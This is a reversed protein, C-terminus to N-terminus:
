RGFPDWGTALRAGLVLRVVEGYSAAGAEVRNAKLYSDYVSWGVASLRPSVERRLRERIANLDARPGAAIRAAITTRDSSPLSQLLEGYLFLWGSYQAAPSGRLCALWGVFNAEGEDAIGALHAWEHAVIMPREFPLLDSAILTELFVPDTMGDVGARRFYLDLMSTKPRGSVLPHRRGVDGLALLMSDVPVHEELEQLSAYDVRAAPHLANLRDVAVAAASAVAPQNVRAADFPITDAIRVRRYNFGWGVLFVLYGVAAWVVTRSAIRRGARWRPRLQMLDRAALAAWAAVAAVLAADSLAFAFTNSLATLRPQLVAYFRASYVREVVAQPIPLLAGAAALAVWFFPVWGRPSKRIAPLPQQM